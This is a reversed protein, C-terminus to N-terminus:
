NRKGGTGATVPPRLHMKKEKRALMQKEGVQEVTSSIIRGLHALEHGITICSTGFAVTTRPLRDTNVVYEPQVHHTHKSQGWMGERNDEPRWRILM